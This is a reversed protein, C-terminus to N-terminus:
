GVKRFIFEDGSSDNRKLIFQTSSSETVKWDDSLTYLQPYTQGFSMFMIVPNKDDGHHWSGAATITGSVTISGQSSFNFIYGNYSSTVIVSGVNAKGVRWNGKTIQRDLKKPTTHKECGGILTMGVILLIFNFRKFINKKMNPRYQNDSEVTSTNLCNCLNIM